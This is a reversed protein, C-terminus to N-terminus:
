AAVAVDVDWVGDVSETISLLRLQNLSLGRYGLRYRKDLCQVSQVDDIFRSFNMCIAHALKLRTIPEGKRSVLPIDNFLRHGPYGLWTIRITISSAGLRNFVIENAHEIMRELGYASRYLVESM